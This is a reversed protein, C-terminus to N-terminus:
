KERPHQRALATIREYAAREGLGALAETYRRFTAMEADTLIFGEEALAGGMDRLFRKRFHADEVARWLARGVISDNVADTRM